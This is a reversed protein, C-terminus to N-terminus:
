DSEVSLNIGPAVLNPLSSAAGARKLAAEFHTMTRTRISELIQATSPETIVVMGRTAAPQRNALSTRVYM